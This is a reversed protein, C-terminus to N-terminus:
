KFVSNNSNINFPKKRYTTCTPDWCVTFGPTARPLRNTPCSREKGTVCGPFPSPKIPYPRSRYQASAAGVFGFSVISALLLNKM